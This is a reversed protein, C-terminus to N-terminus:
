EAFIASVDITQGSLVPSTFEDGPECIGQREYKDNLLVWVEILGPEYDVIWYERVGYHEYLHLKKVRDQRETSPSIIEVILDPPGELRKEAIVCRSDPAIWMVDPQPRNDKDLYVELPATYVRGGVIPLLKGLLFSINFQDGPHKPVPTPSVIIEGNILEIREDSEAQFTEFEAATMRRVQEVM